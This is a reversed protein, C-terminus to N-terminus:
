NKKKSASFERLIERDANPNALDRAIQGKKNKLRQDAGARLLARVVGPQSARVAEFLATEGESNIENLLTPKKKLVDDILAKFGLRTAAFLLTESKKGYRLGLEAGRAILLRAASEHGAGIARLVATKGNKDRADIAAGKDLLHRISTEDGSEAAAMLVTEGDPGTQSASKADAVSKLITDSDGRRASDLTSNAGQEALSIPLEFVGIASIMVLLSAVSMLFPAASERIM